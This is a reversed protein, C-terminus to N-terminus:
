ENMMREIEAASYYLTGNIKRYPLKGKIRFNQLTGASISLMKMVDASRLWEKRESAPKVLKTIDALLEKGFQELEAKTVLEINM